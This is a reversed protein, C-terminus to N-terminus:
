SPLRNSHFRVQPLHLLLEAVGRYAGSSRQYAIGAAPGFQCCRCPAPVQQQWSEWLMLLSFGFIALLLLRRNDM